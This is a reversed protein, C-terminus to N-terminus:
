QGARSWEKASTSLLLDPHERLSELASRGEPTKFSHVAYALWYKAEPDATSLTADILDPVSKTARWRMLTLGSAAKVHSNENDKRLADVLAAYAAGKRQNKPLNVMSRAAEERIYAYKGDRLFTALEDGNGVDGAQVIQQLPASCGASAM